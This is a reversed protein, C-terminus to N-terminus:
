AEVTWSGSRAVTRVSAEEFPLGQIKVVVEAAEERKEDFPARVGSM